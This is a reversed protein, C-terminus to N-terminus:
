DAPREQATLQWERAQVYHRCVVEPLFGMKVGADRMRHWLNWDGPEHVRWADLSHRFVRLSRHYLVSAHIIQGDQLPWSGVLEWSGPSLEMEAIGYAFELDGSRCADLLAEVHDPTFEDDDDLPAIWDGQFIDLARNMPASGAVMWRYKANAPYRGREALNEFRVRRDAVGRVAAETEADCHDGIVVVELNEHTQALASAIARDAVLQGRNYTAIRVTVLPPKSPVWVIPHELRATVLERGLERRERRERLRVRWGGHRVLVWTRDLLERDRLLQVGFVTTLIGAVLVAAVPQAHLPWTVGAIGLGVLLGFAGGRGSARLADSASVGIRPLLLFPVVLINTIALPILTGIAPGIPGILVALILSLAFSAVAEIAVVPALIGHRGRAIAALVLVHAPVNIAWSVAYLTLVGVALPTSSGVWVLLLSPGIAVLVTFGVAGLATALELLVPVAGALGRHGAAALRPYAADIVVFLLSAAIMPLAIGVAYDGAAAPGYFAAVIPVDTGLGLQTAAGMAWLPAVFRLVVKMRRNRGSLVLLSRHRIRLWAWALALAIARGALLSIAAGILGLFPVLAVLLALQVLAQLWNLGALVDFRSLGRILAMLPGGALALGVELGIVITVVRATAALEGTLGLLRGPIDAGFYALLVAGLGLALALIRADGISRRAEEDHDSRAADRAVAFALGVDLFALFARIAAVTAWVGYETIGLSRILYATTLFGALASAAWALANWAALAQPRYM